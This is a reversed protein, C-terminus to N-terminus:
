LTKIQKLYGVLLIVFLYILNSTNRECELAEEYVFVM